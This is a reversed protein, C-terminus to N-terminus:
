APSGALVGAEALADIEAAGYGLDALVARGDAGPPRVPRGPEPPSPEVRASPGIGTVRGVGEHWRTISLGQARVWPDAMLRAISPCGHAGIDRPWLRACWDGVTAQAFRRELAAELASGQLAALGGLGEVSGLLARQRDHAALFFWGDAARYFRRLPSEGRAEQGSPEDWDKGAYLQLFPTQLYTGTHALSAEVAQGEGTRQRHYLALGLAFGLLLGSGYDTVALPEMLPSDPGGFRWQMGTMAQGLPEYGRRGGWPGQQGYASVTGHILSPKARRLRAYGLGLREPVGQAFNQLLIDARDVLDLLVARGAPRKLDLLLTRKGRNVDLHYRYGLPPNAPDNIKVVAAGFEALLRAATPGALVQTLDVVTVGELLRTLPPGPPPPPAAPKPEALLAARDADLARRPGQACPPTAALHVPYGAQLLAGLEPDEAAVVARAGRAQPSEMWERPSRVLALPAGAESLLREWAAAPRTAFLQGVRRRLEALLAKDAALRPRDLLGLDRWEPVGGVAVLAEMFRPNHTAWMVWRGDSCRYCGAGWIDSSFAPQGADDGSMAYAGFAQFLADFLPVEIRRGHGDQARAFLAFVICAAALFAAYSSALPLATYLPRDHAGSWPPLYGNGAAMVVGEWAPLGARPDNSAFGPLSCYILRPNLARSAAPGIGLREMVGPRFNEVLVDASRALRLALARDEDLTLDLVLSKKGRQYFANAPTQWRPGGPPDIRIVEAGQDALMVTTLPGAVYQGFDLVRLGSLSGAV